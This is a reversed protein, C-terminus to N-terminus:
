VYYNTGTVRRGRDQGEGLEEGEQYSSTQERYRFTQKQKAVFM